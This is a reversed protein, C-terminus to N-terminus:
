NKELLAVMGDTAHPTHFVVYDEVLRVSAGEAILQGTIQWSGAPLPTIIKNGGQPGLRHSVVLCSRGDASLRRISQWGDPHEYSGIPPGLRRSAGHRIVWTCRKYLGIADLVFRWQVDSLHDVDGSLCMRGLFTAALSYALRPPDDEKRLVAWVLSQHPAILRHLNAAVIPVADTEHADSFSGVACISQMHPELRHGGSACNEIVLDPMAKRLHRVYDYVGLMHQRLNEGCAEPGDVGPGTNENYDLKIYGFGHAKLQDLLRKDLEQWAGPKRLDWFRRGGVTLPQGDRHLLLELCATHVNAPHRTVEWEYWIGPVLGCDRLADVTASLGHPFRTEDPIWDGPVRSAGSEARAWGEDIVYYTVGSGRLRKALCLIRDHKPHGWFTCFDNFCIPLDREIAPQDGTADAQAQVLRNCADDIDGTTCTLIAQPTDFTEGPALHKSWHGYERDAIGGSFDALDGQRFVEMQWSAQCHLAAGWLVGAHTDEVAATPFWTTVARSGLGGFREASQNYGAWTRDLHLHEFTDVVHRGEMAWATRFRHLRLRGPADDRAFPTIGGISFSSVMDLHVDGSSRNQVVTNVLLYPANCPHILRHEVSLVDSALKTVITTRDSATDVVQEVLKLSETSPWRRLSRGQGRGISCGPTRAAVQVLSDVTWAKLPNGESYKVYRAVAQSELLARRQVVDAERTSPMLWLGVRRSEEDLVYWAVMDGLVHRSMRRVGPALVHREVQETM